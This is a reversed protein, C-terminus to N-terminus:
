FKSHLIRIEKNQRRNESKQRRKTQLIMGGLGLLLLTAPEPITYGSDLTEFTGPDIIEYFQSGPQGVGLWDFSVSFGSVTQGVGIGTGLTLADYFGDDEFVPEPQVVLEDWDGSPPDPTEISLNEFSGYDFWITFEEISPTLSINTVEYIYQWRGVGIDNVQYQISTVPIAFSATTLFIAFIAGVLIKRKMVMEKKDLALNCIGRM